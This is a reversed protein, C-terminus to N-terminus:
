APEHAVGPSSGPERCLLQRSQPNLPYLFIHKPSRGQAQGTRDMRGRGQTLGVEIWNAARYCTGPFRAADVLTELLLPQVQYATRWDPPLQRAAQALLHSALFRLHVWPLILFRSQNVVQPLHAQRAADSWGIWADRPAMKWAASTFLLCALRPFPAQQSRVFYRLQAGYPIRYGLYHYRQLYQHFLHRDSPGQVLLFQLPLYLRLPGQLPPRPDSASDLTLTRPRHPSTLRLPPLSTLWGRARLVQLFGYCERTKLAGNARRWHLLECVTRSLETLSLRSCDHIVQRILDLDESSLARGCFSLSDGITVPM